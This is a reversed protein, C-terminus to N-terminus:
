YKSKTGPIPENSENVMWKEPVTMVWKNATPRITLCGPKVDIEIIDGSQFGADKFWKGALKLSPIRYEPKWRTTGYRCDATYGITLLRKDKKIEM